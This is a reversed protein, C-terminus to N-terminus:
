RWQPALHAECWRLARGLLDPRHASVLMIVRFAAVGAYAAQEADTLLEAARRGALQAAQPDVEHRDVRCWFALWVVDYRWDGATAQEWDFVGTVREGEVLVNEHHFDGHVVDEEPLRLGALRPALAQVEDLLRAADPHAKRALAVREPRHRGALADHVYSQWISPVGAARGAQREALALLQGAHGATVWEPVAGPLVEQLTYRHGAATGTGLYRPAPYGIERMREALAVSDGWGTWGPVDPMTKLIAGAGGADEVLVAGFAGGSCARVIRLGLARAVADSGHM